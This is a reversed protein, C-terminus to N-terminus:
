AARSPASKGGAKILDVAPRMIKGWVRRITKDFKPDCEEVANLLCDLWVEFLRPPIDYGAHGYSAALRKIHLRVQRNDQSVLAAMTISARLMRVQREFDTNRFRDRVEEATEMFIKSFRHYFGESSECRKLSAHFVEAEFPTVVM